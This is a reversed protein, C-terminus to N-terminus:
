DRPVEVPLEVQEVPRPAREGRGLVHGVVLATDVPVGPDQGPDDPKVGVHDDRHRRPIHTLAELFPGGLTVDLLPAPEALRTDAHDGDPVIGPEVELRGFAHLEVVEHGLFARTRPPLHVVGPRRVLDRLVYRGVGREHVQAVVEAGRRHARGHDAVHQDVHVVVVDGPGVHFGEGRDQFPLHEVYEAPLVRRDCRPSTWPTVNLSHRGPPALLRWGT